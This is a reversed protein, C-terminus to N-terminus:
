IQKCRRSGLEQPVEGKKEQLWPALAVFVEAQPRARVFWRNHFGLFTSHAVRGVYQFTQPDSVSSPPPETSSIRTSSPRHTMTAQRIFQYLASDQLLIPFGRAGEEPKISSLPFSLPFFLSCCISASPSGDHLLHHYARKLCLDARLPPPPHSRQRTRNSHEHGGGGDCHPARTKM